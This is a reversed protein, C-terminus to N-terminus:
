DPDADTAGIGLVHRRLFRLQAEVAVEHGGMFPAYHGGPIRVVEGRPAREGARIGPEPLVSQDDDCALVLLPSRVRAACHRGPRYFGAALASRAAIEQQWEPYSDDPDLATPGLRSDPTNLAAVVGPKAALPVLLPKRGFVGGIADRIGRTTLRLFAPLTAHRVANPGAARADALPTQAIVAALEPDRAAVALVHGGALSFGWIAVKAPDVGPLSRAFDIAAHYDAQQDRVRVVQRPSGMSEGLRRFDFALVTFGAQNFRKAFPDTGPEKTVGAGAAMVVCGGNTGRYHWAACTADGSRFHVKARTVVDNVPNRPDEPIAAM